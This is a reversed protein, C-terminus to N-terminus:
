WMFSLIVTTRGVDKIGALSSEDRRWRQDDVLTSLMTGRVQMLIQSLMKTDKNSTKRDPVTRLIVSVTGFGSFMGLTSKRNVVGKKLM